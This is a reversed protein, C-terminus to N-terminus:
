PHRNLTPRTPVALRTSRQYATALRPLHGRSLAAATPPHEVEFSDFGCGLLLPIQDLLVDGAARLEGSFGFRDRLLRAISYARGDTFKALMLVILPAGVIREVDLTALDDAVLVVGTRREAGEGAEALSLWTALAVPRRERNSDLPLWRDGLGVLRRHFILAM